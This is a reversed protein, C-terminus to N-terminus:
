VLPENKARQVHLNCQLLHSSQAVWVGSGVLFFEMM